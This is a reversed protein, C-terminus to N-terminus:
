TWIDLYSFDSWRTVHQCNSCRLAVDKEKVGDREWVEPPIVKGCICGAPTQLVLLMVEAVCDKIGPAKSERPGAVNLVRPEKEDLWERVAKAVRKNSEISSKKTLVMHMGPQKEECVLKLTLKTGGTPVEEFSFVITADSCQVNLKTRVRYDTSECETVPYCDPVKGDEALRGKPVWGGHEYGLIAAAILGGRDAGTQGGSIIKVPRFSVQDWWAEHDRGATGEEEGERV